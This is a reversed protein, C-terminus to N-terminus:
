GCGPSAGFLPIGGRLALDMEPFHRGLATPPEGSRTVLWAFINEWDEPHPVPRSVILWGYVAGVPGALAACACLLGSYGLSHFRYYALASFLSWLASLIFLPGVM